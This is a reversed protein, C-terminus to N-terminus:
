VSAEPRTHPARRRHTKHASLSQRHDHAIAADVRRSACRAIVAKRAHHVRGQGRRGPLARQRRQGRQHSYICGRGTLPVQEVVRQHPPDLAAVEVDIGHGPVLAQGHVAVTM